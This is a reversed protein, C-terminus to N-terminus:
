ATPAVQTAKRRRLVFSVSLLAVTAIIGVFTLDWWPSAIDWWPREAQVSRDLAGIALDAEYFIKAIRGLPYIGAVLTTVTAAGVWTTNHSGLSLHRSVLMFLTILVGLLGIVLLPGKQEFFINNLAGLVLVENTPAVNANAFDAELGPIENRVVILNLTLLIWLMGIPVWWGFLGPAERAALSSETPREESLPKTGPLTEEM